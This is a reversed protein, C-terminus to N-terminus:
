TLMDLKGCKCLGEHHAVLHLAEAVDVGALRTPKTTLRYRRKTDNVLAPDGSTLKKMGAWGDYYSGSVGTMPEKSIGTEEAYLM